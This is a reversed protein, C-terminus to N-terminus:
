VMKMFATYPSNSNQNLSTYIQMNETKPNNIEPKRNINKAPKNLHRKSTIFENIKSIGFGLFGATIALSLTNFRASINRAYKTIPNNKNNLIGEETGNVVQAAKSGILKELGEVATESTMNQVCDILESNSKELFNEGFLKQAAVYMPREGKKSELNFVKSIKGGEKDITKLAKVFSNKDQFRSYRAVVEDSTFPLIGGEPNLYGLIRKGINKNKVADHVLPLGTKKQAINCMGAQLAKMAFLMTTITTVDRTLIERKEDEDRAKLLRPGVVCASMLFYYAGRGPNYSEGQIFHNTKQIIRRAKETNKGDDLITKGLNEAFVKAGQRINNVLM